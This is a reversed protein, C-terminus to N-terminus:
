EIEEIRMELSKALVRSPKQDGDIQLIIWQAGGNWAWLHGIKPKRALTERIERIRGQCTSCHSCSPVTVQLAVMEEDFRMLRRYRWSNVQVMREGVKERSNTQTSM